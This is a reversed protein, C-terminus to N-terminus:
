KNARSEMTMPRGVRAPIKFAIICGLSRFAMKSKNREYSLLLLLLLLFLLSFNIKLVPHIKV